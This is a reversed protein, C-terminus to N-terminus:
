QTPPKTDPTVDLDKARSTIKVPAGKRCNEMCPASAPMDPRPDPSIFGDRNPMRIAVLKKADLVEDEKILDNLYLIFAVIAYTEDTTLSHRQGFPM